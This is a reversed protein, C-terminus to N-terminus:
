ESTKAPLVLKRSRGRATVALSGAVRTIRTMLMFVPVATVVALRMYDTILFGALWCRRMMMPMSFMFVIAMMKVFVMRM